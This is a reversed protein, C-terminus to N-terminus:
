KFFREKLPKPGYNEKPLDAVKQTLLFKGSKIWEKLIKAIEKAKYISSMNGTPIKKGGIEISGSNLEEYNVRALIGNKEQSYDVVNTYIDKDEVLVHSLIEDNLIPIPVGIGVALSVGYGTISVGKLWKRDMNKMDGIVAITGAPGIPVGNKERNQSPNHQTGWFTVYGTGGALFIKTGIGIIDYYPDNILPSFSGAGSYTANGMNPLLIGMYTYIVKKSCNVAVNYNQSSNRPNFLFAENVDKINIYTEINQRPYCDTGYSYASLRIDKGAVFEEIVHGGGYPFTGPHIKNRPDDEPLSSAGLCLDCAAFGGYAPVGNLYVKGGGFKIPPDPHGVNLFMGSSCMPSFTGTTVVDVEKELERKKKEKSLALLEEKTVVVVKGKKIKENIEEITKM